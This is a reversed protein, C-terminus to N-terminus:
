LKNLHNYYYHLIIYKGNYHMVIDLLNANPSYAKDVKAMQIQEITKLDQSTIHFDLHSYEPYIIVSTSREKSWNSWSNAKEINM